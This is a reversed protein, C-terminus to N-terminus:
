APGPDRSRPTSARSSSSRAARASTLCHARQVTLYAGVVNVDLSTRLDDTTFTEMPGLIGVSANVVLADLREWRTTIADYWRDLDDAARVDGVMTLAGPLEHQTECVTALDRGLIAVHAGLKTFRRATARGIGSNGG